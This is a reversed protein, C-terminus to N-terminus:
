DVVGPSPGSFCALLSTPAVTAPSTLKAPLLGVIDAETM